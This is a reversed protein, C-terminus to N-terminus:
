AKKKTAGGQGWEQAAGESLMGQLLPLSGGFGTISQVSRSVTCGRGGGQPSWAGAGATRDCVEEITM